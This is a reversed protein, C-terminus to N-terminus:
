LLSLEKERLQEKRAELEAQQEDLAAQEESIEHQEYELELMKQTSTSALWREYETPEPEIRPAVYTITDGETLKVYVDRIGVEWAVLVAIKVIVTYLCLYGFWRLYKRLKPKNM